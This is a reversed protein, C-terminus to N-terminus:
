NIDQGETGSQSTLRHVSGTWWGGLGASVKLMVVPFLEALCFVSM